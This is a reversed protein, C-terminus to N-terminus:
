RIRLGSAALGEWSDILTGQARDYPDVAFKFSNSFDFTGDSAPSPINLGIAKAQSSTVYWDSNNGTPDTAPWNQQVNTFQDVTSASTSLASRLAGYTTQTNAGFSKGLPGGLSLDNVTINLTIPNTYMEEYQQAAYNIANEVATAGLLSTVTSGYHLDITLARAPMRMVAIASAALLLQRARTTHRGGQKPRKM